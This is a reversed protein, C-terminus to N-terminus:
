GDRNAPLHPRVADYGDVKIHLTRTRVRQVVVPQVDKGDYVLRKADDHVDGALPPMRIVFGIKQKDRGDLVGFQEIEM